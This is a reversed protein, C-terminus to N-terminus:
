RGIQFFFNAHDAWCRQWHRCAALDVLPEFGRLLAVIGRNL